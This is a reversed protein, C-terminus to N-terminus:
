VLGEGVGRKIIVKITDFDLNVNSTVDNYLLIKYFYKYNFKSIIIKWQSNKSCVNEKQMTECHPDRLM